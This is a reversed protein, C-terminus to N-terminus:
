MHGGTAAFIGVVTGVILGFIFLMLGHFRTIHREPDPMYRGSNVNQKVQFGIAELELRDYHQTLPAKGKAQRALTEFLENEM